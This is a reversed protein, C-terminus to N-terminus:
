YKTFLGKNKIVAACRSGCSQMLKQCEGVSIKTWEDQLKEWLDDTNAPNQAMVKEGLTKWLNEIPNLYPSQTPWDM